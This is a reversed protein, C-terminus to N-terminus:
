DASLQIVAPGMKDPVEDGLGIGVPQVTQPPVPDVTKSAQKRKLKSPTVFECDSM